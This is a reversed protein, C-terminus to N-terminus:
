ADCFDPIECTSLRIIIQGILRSNAPPFPYEVLREAPVWLL